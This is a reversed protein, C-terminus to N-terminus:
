LRSYGGVPFGDMPMQFSSDQRRDDSIPAALRSQAASTVLHM